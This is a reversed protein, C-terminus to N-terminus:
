HWIIKSRLGIFVQFIFCHAYQSVCIIKKLIAQIKKQFSHAFYQQFHCNSWFWLNLHHSAIFLINFSNYRLIFYSMFNIIQFLSSLLLFLKRLLMFIAIQLYEAISNCLFFFCVFVCLCFYLYRHSQMYAYSYM